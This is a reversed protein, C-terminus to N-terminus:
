PAMFLISICESRVAWGSTTRMEQVVDLAGGVMPTPIERPAVMDNLMLLNESMSPNLKAFVNTNITGGGKPKSQEVEPMVLLVVDVGGPGKGKLTDDYGWTLDDQNMGLVDEFVGKTTTSGAGKAQYQVLSVINQYEMQGLVEQPGIMVFKRPIGLQNTRTKLASVQSLLWLALEGNDYTGVSQNNNSDPPLNAQFANQANMLGEGNAPNFGYILGNRQLQFNAQHMGLRHMENISVGWKSVAATDHHDWQARCRLLYTPAQIQSFDFAVGPLQNAASQGAAITTRLDIKKIYAYLDGESLRTLPAGTPLMEFAQSAQSFPMLLEPMVYSPHVQVFSPALVGM